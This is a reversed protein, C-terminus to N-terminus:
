LKTRQMTLLFAKEAAYLSHHPPMHSWPLCLREYYLSLDSSRSVARLRKSARREADPAQTLDRDVNPLKADRSRKVADVMKSADVRCTSVWLVGCAYM